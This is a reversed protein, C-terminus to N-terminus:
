ARWFLRYGEIPFYFACSGWYRGRAEQIWHHWFGPEDYESVGLPLVGGACHLVEELEGCAARLYECVAEVSVAGDIYEFLGVEGDDEAAVACDEGCSAFEAFSHYGNDADIHAFQAEKGFEGWGFEVVEEVTDGTVFFDDFFSEDQMTGEFSGSFRGGGEPGYVVDDDSGSLGESHDFEFHGDLALEEGGAWAVAYDDGGGGAGGGIAEGGASGDEGCAEVGEDYGGDAGM